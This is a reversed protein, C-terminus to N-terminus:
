SRCHLGVAEAAGDIQLQLATRLDMCARDPEGLSARVLGRSLLAPGNTPELLLANDLDILAGALDGIERRAEGSGFHAAAYGPSLAIANQFDGLAPPYLGKELRAIGRNSYALAHRPDLQLARSLDLIADDLEGASLRIAGRNAYSEASPELVLARDLDALAAIEDGRLHRIVGRHAWAAAYRPAVRIAESLDSEAGTADGIEYRAVARNLRATPIDPYRALTDDWLSLSTRWVFTRQHTALALLGVYLALVILLSRRASPYRRELWRGGAAIAVFFGISALYTYRDAMIVGGVPILQLVFFINLTFFLIAFCLLPAHRWSWLTAAAVGAVGIVSAFYSLPIQGVPPYPHFASLGHPVLLMWLYQVFGYSALPIRQLTSWQAEGHLQGVSGQAALAVLGFVLSLAFFPAKEVLIRPGLPRRRLLADVAVLTPALSVAMGKSLLSLAFLGLSLAYFLIARRSHSETYRLYALLAGLYFFAYLVDKRESVWAVSEVHLPHVGFLASAILGITQDRTLRQVCLYVLVTNALHLLGNVLHHIWVAGGGLAHDLSLSLMTLPHYNGKFFSAFLLQTNTWSLERLYPNRTIYDNDDWNTLGNALTPSYALATLVLIGVLWPWASPTHAQVAAITDDHGPARAPETTVHGNSTTM